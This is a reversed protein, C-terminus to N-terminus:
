KVIDDFDLIDFIDGFGVFDVPLILHEFLPVKKAPDKIHKNFVDYIFLTCYTYDQKGTTFTIMYQNNLYNDYAYDFMKNSMEDTMYKYRFVGFQRDEEALVEPLTERFGINLNPFDILKKEKNVLLAHGTKIIGKAPTLIIVDGPNLYEIIKPLYKMDYWYKTDDFKLAFSTLGLNLIILLLVKKM